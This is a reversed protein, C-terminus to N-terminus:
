RIQKEKWEHYEVWNEYNQSWDCLDDHHVTDSKYLIAWEMFGELDNEVLNEIENEIQTTAM